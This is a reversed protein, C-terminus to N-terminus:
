RDWIQKRVETIRIDEEADLDAEEDQYNGDVNRLWQGVQSYLADRKAPDNYLLALEISEHIVQQRDSAWRRKLSARRSEVDARIESARQEFHIRKETDIRQREVAILKSFGAAVFVLVSVGLGVILINHRSM